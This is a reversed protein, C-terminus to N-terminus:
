WLEICQCGAESLVNRAHSRVDSDNALMPMATVCSNLSLVENDVPFPSSGEAGSGAACRLCSPLGSPAVNRPMQLDLNNPLSSADLRSVNHVYGDENKQKAKVAIELSLIIDDAALERSRPRRDHQYRQYCSSQNNRAQSHDKHNCWACELASCSDRIGLLDIGSVAVEYRRGDYAIGM